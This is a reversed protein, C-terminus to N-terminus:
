FIAAFPVRTTTFHINGNGEQQYHTRRRIHLRFPCATQRVIVCRYGQAQVAVALLFSTRTL